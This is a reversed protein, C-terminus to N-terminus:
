LIGVRRNERTVLCCYNGIRANQLSFMGTLALESFPHEAFAPLSELLEAVLLSVGAVMVALGGWRAVSVPSM